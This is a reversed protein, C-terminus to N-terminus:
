SSQAPYARALRRRHVGAVRAARQAIRPRVRRSEAYECALRSILEGLDVSAFTTTVVGADLRSIDLIGALLGNLSAMSANAMEVYKAAKPRDTVQGEVLSLLLTLSQVPQRLDHSAAALFKSKAVNAREAEVKAAILRMETEKRETIDAVVGALRVPRAEDDYVTRGTAAIWHISQDPWRVRAEFFLDGTRSSRAFADEFAPLDEPLIHNAAISQSWEPQSERYGFIQDHRV